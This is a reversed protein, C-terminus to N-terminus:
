LIAWFRLVEFLFPLLFAELFDLVTIGGLASGTVKSEPNRTHSEKEEARRNPAQSSSASIKRLARSLGSKELVDKSTVM